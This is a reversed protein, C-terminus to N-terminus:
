SIDTLPLNMRPLVVRFLAGGAQSRGATVEGEHVRAGLTRDSPRLRHWSGRAARAPRIPATSATSSTFLDGRSGQGSDGVEVWALTRKASACTSRGAETFKIANDVLNGRLQRLLSPDGVRGADGRARLHASFTQGARQASGRVAESAIQALSVPEQSRRRRSRGQGAYLM